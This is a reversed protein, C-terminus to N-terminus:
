TRLSEIKFTSALDVEDATQPTENREVEPLWSESPCPRGAEGLTGM